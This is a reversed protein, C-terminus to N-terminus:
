SRLLRGSGVRTQICDIKPEQNEFLFNFIKENHVKIFVSMFWLRNLHSDLQPLTFFFSLSIVFSGFINLFPSVTFDFSVCVSFQLTVCAIPLHGSTSSLFLTILHDFPVLILLSLVFLFLHYFSVSHCFFWIPLFHSVFIYVYLLYVFPAACLCANAHHCM